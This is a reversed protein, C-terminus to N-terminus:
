RRRGRRCAGCRVSPRRGGLRTSTSVGKEGAKTYVYKGKAWKWAGKRGTGGYERKKFFDTGESHEVIYDIANEISDGELSVFLDDLENVPRACQVVRDDGLEVDIM